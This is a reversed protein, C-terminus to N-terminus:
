LAENEICYQLAGNITGAVDTSRFLSVETVRRSISPDIIVAISDEDWTLRESVLSSLLEGMSQGNQVAVAALLKRQEEDLNFDALLFDLDRRVAGAEVTLSGVMESIAAVGGSIQETTMQLLVEFAAILRNGVDGVDSADSVYAEVREKASSLRSEADLEEEGAIADPHPLSLAQHVKCYLADKQASNRCQQGNTNTGQCKGYINDTGM